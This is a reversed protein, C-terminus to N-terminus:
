AGHTEMWERFGIYLGEDAENMLTCVLRVCEAFRRSAFIEVAFTPYRECLAAVEADTLPPLAPAQLAKWKALEDPTGWAAVAPPLTEAVVPPTSGDALAPPAAATSGAAERVTACWAGFAAPDRNQATRMLTLLQHEDEDLAPTTPTDSM